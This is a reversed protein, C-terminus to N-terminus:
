PTLRKPQAAMWDAESVKRVEHMHVFVGKKNGVVVDPYKKNSITTAIVQTGIGSDSDILHPVFDVVGKNRTLKFWYLVAPENPEADGSKGHAWFRKGTVIDKLGDGDMDVLDIAHPQSFKVGYNNEEKKSGVILHQKWSVTEGQKSQEYWALGFGHAELSTIVDNLGDGNIDYVYMQAGGVKSFSVPHFKWVAEEKLSKPQEWWGDKDLIDTRGDKNVDGYGIGHTFRQWNGKDSIKHFTWPKGADKWDATAYGVYGGSNCLIDPKKDGDIDVFAPSENDVVDLVRHRLWPDNGNIGKKGPNKYWSADKGPFGYVMIDTWGDHDFDHPFTLFNDSYANNTGLAGEFGQVTTEQGDANKKKFTQTASYITRRTKFNPGEYWFPGSFVDIKGDKNLDTAHAGEAWFKDTIRVKQWTHLDHSKAHLQTSISVAALTLLAFKSM